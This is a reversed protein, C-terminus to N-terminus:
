LVLQVTSTALLMHSIYAIASHFSNFDYINILWVKTM